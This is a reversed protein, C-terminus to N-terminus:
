PEWRLVQKEPIGADALLQTVEARSAPDVCVVVGTTSPDYEIDDEDWLSTFSGVHGDWAQGSLKGVAARVKLKENEWKVFHDKFLVKSPEPSWYFLRIDERMGLTMSGVDADKTEIIAKAVSIGKGSAFFLITPYRTLFLIPRLDLGSYDFPGLELQDGEKLAFVRPTESEYVLLDLPHKVSLFFQPQKTQGAPIDGRIKLLVPENAKSTFPPCSVAVKIAKGGNVKVQALRGPASYASELAVMERSIEAEITIVRVGPALEQVALVRAPHWDKKGGQELSTITFAQPEIMDQMSHMKVNSRKEMVEESVATDAMAMVSHLNHSHHHLVYVNRCSFKSLGLFRERSKLCTSTQFHCGHRTKCLSGVDLSAFAASSQMAM